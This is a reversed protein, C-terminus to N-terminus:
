TLLQGVVIVRMALFYGGECPLLRETSLLLSLTFLSGQIVSLDAVDWGGWGWWWWWWWWWWGGVVVVVVAVCPLCPWYTCIKERTDRVVGEEVCIWM